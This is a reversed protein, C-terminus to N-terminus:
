KETREVEAYARFYKNTGKNSFIESVQLVHIDKDREMLRWFWRIDKKTGQLRIKLM